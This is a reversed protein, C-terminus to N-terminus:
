LNIKFDCTPLAWFSHEYARMTLYACAELEKLKNALTRTYLTGTFILLVKTGSRDNWAEHTTQTNEVFVEGLSSIKHM